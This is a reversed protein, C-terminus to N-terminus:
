GRLGEFTGRHLQRLGSGVAAEVRVCLRCRAAPNITNSIDGTVARVKRGSKLTPDADRLYSRAQRTAHRPMGTAPAGTRCVPPCSVNMFKAVRFVDTYSTRRRPGANHLNWQVRRRASLRSVDHAVAVFKETSPDSRAIFQLSQTDCVTM